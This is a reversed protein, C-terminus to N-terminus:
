VARTLILKWICRKNLITCGLLAMKQGTDVLRLLWCYGMFHWKYNAASSLKLNQKKKFCILFSIEPSDDAPLLFEHFMMGKKLFFILFATALNTMQQLRSQGKLPNLMLGSFVRILRHLGRSQKSDIIHM